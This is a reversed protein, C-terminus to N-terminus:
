ERGPVRDLIEDIVNQSEAGQVYAPVARISRSKRELSEAPAKCGDLM